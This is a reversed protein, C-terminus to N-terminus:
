DLDSRNIRGIVADDNDIIEAEKFDLALDSKFKARSPKTKAIGYGVMLLPIFLLVPDESIYFLIFGVVSAAEYIGWRIISATRYGSAKEEITKSSLANIRQTFLMTGIYIGATAIGIGIGILTSNKGLEDLNIEGDGFKLYIGLGILAIQVIQLAFFLVTLTRFYSKSTIEIIQNM